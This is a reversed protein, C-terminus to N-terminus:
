RESSPSAATRWRRSCYRATVVGTSAKKWAAWHGTWAMSETPSTSSSYPRSRRATTAQHRASDLELGAVLDGLQALGVQDHVVHEVLELRGGGRPQAGPLQVLDGVLAELLQLGLRGEQAVP